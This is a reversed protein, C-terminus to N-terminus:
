SAPPSTPRKNECWGDLAAARDDPYRGIRDLVEATRTVCPGYRRLIGVLESHTFQVTEAHGSLCIVLARDLESSPTGAAPKRSPQRSEDPRQRVLPQRGGGVREGVAIV